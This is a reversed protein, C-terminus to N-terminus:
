QGKGGALSSAIVVRLHYGDTGVDATRERVIMRDTAVTIGKVIKAGGATQDQVHLHADDNDQATAAIFVNLRMRTTIAPSAVSAM